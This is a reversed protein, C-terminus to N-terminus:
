VIEVIMAIGQGGASAPQRTAGYIADGFYREVRWRVRGDANTEWGFHFRRSVHIIIAREKNTLVNLDVSFLSVSGFFRTLKSRTAAAIQIV